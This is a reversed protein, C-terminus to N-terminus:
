SEFRQMTSRDAICRKLGEEIRVVPRGIMVWTLRTNGVFEAAPQELMTYVPDRGVLRGIVECVKRLSVVEPGALDLVHHGELEVARAFAAAADDVFIPNFRLGDCGQLQVARGERVSAILRPVLMDARQGPGYIFFPRLVVTTPFLRRYSQLLAEACLKTALYFGLPSEALIRPIEGQLEGSGFIGGTSAYVIKRVGSVRAWELLRLFADVNVTFIDESRSPFERFHRSQALSVLADVDSPFKRFDPRALDTVVSEIGAERLAGEEEAGLPQRVAAVVQHGRQVLLRILRRGVFGGAGAVLIRM